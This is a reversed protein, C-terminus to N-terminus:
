AAGSAQALTLQVPPPALSGPRRSSAITVEHGTQTFRVSVGINGSGLIAVRM